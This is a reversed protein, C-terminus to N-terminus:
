LTGLPEVPLPAPSEVGVSGFNPRKFRKLNKKRWTEYGRTDLGAPPEAGWAERHLDTWVLEELFGAAEAKALQKGFPSKKDAEEFALLGRLASLETEFRPVFDGGCKPGLTPAEELAASLLGLYLIGAVMDETSAGMAINLSSSTKVKEGPAKEAVPALYPKMAAGLESLVAIRAEPVEDRLRADLSFRLKVFHKAVATVWLYSITPQGDRVYEYVAERAVPMDETAGLRVLRESKLQTDPYKAHELGFRAEEFQQCSMATDGGDPIQELAADYVYVTLSLGRGSYQYSVGLAAPDYRHPEGSIRMPGLNPPLQLPSPELKVMDQCFAALPAGTCAVALWWLKKM